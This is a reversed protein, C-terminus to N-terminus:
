GNQKKRVVACGLGEKKMGEEFCKNCSICKVKSRDGSMWRNVLGPEHIFPRCMSIFDAWNNEIVNEAVDFSRYGGVSILPINVATRFQKVNDIFYAEQDPRLIKVRAPGLDGSYRTGGSVEIADIGSKELAKACQIADDRTLANEYFDESNLKIFIPYDPGTESRVAEYVELVFRRRNEVSGGYEDTRQNTLPSLFQNLLYGHAGHLQVADFGAAKARGAASAFSDITHKIDDKSMEKPTIGFAPNVVASPGIPTKGGTLKETTQGGAHVIQMAVKADTEHIANCLNRFGDIHQDSFIGTKKPLQKGEPSVYSYGMIILGVKGIALQKTYEVLEETCFGDPESGLGEWTASRVFRNSVTLNGIKGEQFLISM